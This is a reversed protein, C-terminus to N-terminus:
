QKEQRYASLIVNSFTNWSFDNKDMAAQASFAAERNNRYFDLIAKAIEEPNLGTVYGVRGDKVIEPLGGVRTVLMPREFHYAIQTVGSQTAERYPQVIMDAASFYLKVQERPIYSNYFIVNDKLDYKEILEQYENEDDYFEGAVILRINENKIEANGMAELLLDLGKYKRIFGFFLLFRGNVDLKLQQRAAPKAVKEGFIDYVPHPSFYRNPNGTFQDLEKLVAKSMSVFAHCSGTFYRTLMRDGPRKEHPIINDTVAIVRTTKKVLRSITGLSPAMFPLWYRVIIFDPKQRKIFAATNFWSVPNVSNILNHIAIGEPAKGEEMQTKGPFLFSPYQLSFSIISCDIGKEQLSRALAENFNAIGGRYPFAPGLIFCKM